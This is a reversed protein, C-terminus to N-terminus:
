NMFHLVECMTCGFLQSFYFHWALWLTAQTTFRSPSTSWFTCLSIESLPSTRWVAKLQKHDHASRLSTSFIWTSWLGSFLLFFSFPLLIIEEHNFEDLFNPYLINWMIHSYKKWLMIKNPLFIPKHSHPEVIQSLPPSALLLQWFNHESYDWEDYALKQQRRTLKIFYLFIVPHHILLPHSRQTYTHSLNFPDRGPHSPKSHLRLHASPCPTRGSLAGSETFSM